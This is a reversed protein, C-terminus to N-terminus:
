DPLVKVRINRYCVKSGPDHGQLAFTGHPLWKMRPLIQYEGKAEEPLTYDVVTKGDIKVVVHLGVVSIEQTYWVNDKAPAEAIDKVNYLSGTRRWDQHSNNVQCEMGLTPFGEEQYRTHFYIGSNAKPFTMVEARFIFNKFDHGNVDGTYFLHAVPGNVVIMGDQVKFSDANKGVQWGALSKGDFLSVFGQEDDPKDAALCFAASALALTVAQLFRM